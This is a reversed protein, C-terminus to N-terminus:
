KQIFGKLDEMRMQLEELMLFMKDFDEDVSEICQYAARDFELKKMAFQHFVEESM